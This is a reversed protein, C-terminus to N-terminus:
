NEREFYRQIREIVHNPSFEDKYEFDVHVIEKVWDFDIDDVKDFIKIYEENYFPLFRVYNNNTLLKKGYVVAECYRATAGVQGEQVLELLCNSRM